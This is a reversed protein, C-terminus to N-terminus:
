AHDGYDRDDRQPRPRADRWIEPASAPESLTISAVSFFYPTIRTWSRLSIISVIAIMCEFFSGFPRPTPASVLEPPSFETITSRASSMPTDNGANEGSLAAMM